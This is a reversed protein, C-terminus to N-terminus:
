LGLFTSDEFGIERMTAADFVVMVEDGLVHAGQARPPEPMAAVFWVSGADFTLRLATPVEVSRAPEVITGDARMAPGLKLREWWTRVVRVPTSLFPGWRDLDSPGIRQPGAEGLVLHEEIPEHFVEIGYTFFTNTWIITVPGSDMDLQVGMVAHHWAGYDWRAPDASFSHIDWYHVAVPCSGVLRSTKAEYAARKDAGDSTANV